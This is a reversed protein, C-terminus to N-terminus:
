VDDAHAHSAAGAGLQYAIRTIVNTDTDEHDHAECGSAATRALRWGSERRIWTGAPPAAHAHAPALLNIPMGQDYCHALGYVVMHTKAVMSVTSNSCVDVM